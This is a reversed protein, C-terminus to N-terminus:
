QGILQRFEPTGRIMAYMPDNALAARAQVGGLQVAKRASELFPNMERNAFEFRALALWVGPDNTQVATLKRAPGLGAKWQGNNNCFDVAFKLFDPSEGFDRMSQTIQQDVLNTQGTEMYLRLLNFVAEPNNPNAALDARLVEIERDAERLRVVRQRAKRVARNRPDGEIAKDWIAAMEDWRKQARLIDSLAVLSEMNNPHLQLAQRYAREAEPWMGRARYINGTSNRLKSFSRKADFDEHYNKDGLLRDVYANWYRFDEEVVEPPLTQLPEKNLRYSLGNPIAYAYTWEMPFSEEIFFDRKDKNKEFIWQAIAAHYLIGVNPDQPNAGPPLSTTVKTVIEMLERESPMITDDPPYQKDRGLWKEFWGKAKPRGPAYHDHIYRQYFADALANQTVIVLDRRDFGPDRRYKPDVFSEGLIMYTPVFRGPDTGGFVFANKPLDKLMDHGYDWGFWHDRQSCLPANRIGTWLPLLPLLFAAYRIAPRASVARALVYGTGVACILAFLLYAYGHYPFQLSWSDITTETREMVPQLFAALLFGILLVYLFTRQRLPLRFVALVSAFFAVICWPTFNEILKGTYFAVFERGIELTSVREPDQPEPPKEPATGMGKGLTRVILDSLSGAYQTRNISYFFGEPTSTYGWNMPPNTSSALPMYAYPLLGAIVAVPVLLVIKLDARRWKLVLLIILGLMAFYFFRVATSWTTADNSLWAFGLYVLAASVLSAVLVDWFVSRRVLLPVLLPLPALALTLHHNSMCLAFTFFTALIPLDLLPRRVWCYLSILFLGVLLGHLTYVEAIVAQTWFSFSFAFLLGCSGAILAIMMQPLTSTRGDGGWWPMMWRLMSSALLTTAGVALAGCLGSFLNVEWAANGIPLLQFLWALLTWLPYGTPHPVGFHQAAAIFEGSDLLGVNPQATYFYVAGSVLTASLATWWDIRQFLNERLDADEPENTRAM